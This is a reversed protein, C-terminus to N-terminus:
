VGRRTRAAHPKRYTGQMKKRVQVKSKVLADEGQAMPHVPFGKANLKLTVIKVSEWVMRGRQMLQKIQRNGEARRVVYDAYTENHGRAPKILARSIM